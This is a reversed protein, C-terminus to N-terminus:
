SSAKLRDAYKKEFKKIKPNIVIQCYGAYPNKEYYAQHHPEAKYFNELPILQTVIKDNFSESDNLESIVKDAIERQNEDHYLIISRYQTGKDAGQRNLTTPDHTSFFVELIERFSIIQPDFKIQVVEAHNTRGTCVMEYSPNSVSGGAYGVVVDIVGNLNKFIPELCWFCGGGLTTKELSKQEEM